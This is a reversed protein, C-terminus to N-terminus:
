FFVKVRCLLFNSFTTLLGCCLTLLACLLGVSVLIFVRTFLYNWVHCLLKDYLCRLYMCVYLVYAQLYVICLQPMLTVYAHTYIHKHCSFQWNVYFENVINVIVLKLYVRTLVYAFLPWYIHLYLRKYIIIRCILTYLLRCLAKDCNTSIFPHRNRALYM